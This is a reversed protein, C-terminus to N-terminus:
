PKEGGKDNYLYGSLVFFLPLHFLYIFRIAFSNSIESHGLVVLIIGVARMIDVVLNRKKMSKIGQSAM